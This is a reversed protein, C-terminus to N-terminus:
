LACLGNIFTRHAPFSAAFSAKGKGGAFLSLPGALLSDLSPILSVSVMRQLTQFDVKGNPM